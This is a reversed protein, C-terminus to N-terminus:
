AVTAHVVAANDTTMNNEERKTAFYLHQEIKGAPMENKCHLCCAKPAKRVSEGLRERHQQSFQLEGRAAKASRAEIAAKPAIGKLGHQGQPQRKRKPISGNRQLRELDKGEPKWGTVGDGGDTANVLDCGEELYHQIWRRESEQWAGDAVEEIVSFDPVLGESILLRLWNALHNKRGGQYWLQTHQYRRRSPKATMGVYRLEGTRPDSLTYIFKTM